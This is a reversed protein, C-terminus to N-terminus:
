PASIAVDLHVDRVRRLRWAVDFLAQKALANAVTGELHLIQDEVSFRISSGALYPHDHIVRAFSSSLELDVQPICSPPDTQAETPAAATSRPPRVTTSPEGAADPGPASNGAVILVGHSQGYGNPEFEDANPDDFFEGDRLYRFTYRGPPLFTRWSRTDGDVPALAGRWPDWENFDGVVSAPSQSDLVFEVNEGGHVITRRLMTGGKM